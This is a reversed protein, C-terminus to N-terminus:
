IIYCIYSSDEKRLLINMFILHGGFVITLKKLHNMHLTLGLASCELFLSGLNSGYTSSTEQFWLAKAQSKLM